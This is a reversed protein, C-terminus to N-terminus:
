ICALIISLTGSNAIFFSLVSNIFVIFSSSPHCTFSIISSLAGSTEIAQALNIKRQWYKEAKEEM